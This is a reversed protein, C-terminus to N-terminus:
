FKLICISICPPPMYFFLIYLYPYFFYLTSSLNVVTLYLDKIDITNFLTFDV